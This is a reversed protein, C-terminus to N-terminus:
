GAAAQDLLWLLTGSRLRIYQVPFLPKADPPAVLVDQIRKNKGAGSVLFTVNRAANIAPLTLSIRDVLPAPPGKHEVAAVWRKDIDLAPSGPFLSATHGDTGMGLLVLDFSRDGPFFNHLDREYQAAAQEPPLEGYIRHINAQPIQIHELLSERVMRYNSDPHDPPVCREDGWFLHINEWDLDAGGLLKYVLRPTSGGALAFSFHGQDALAANALELIHGAAADALEVQGAYVKVQAMM